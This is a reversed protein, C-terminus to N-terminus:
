YNFHKHTDEIRMEQLTNIVLHREEALRTRLATLVAATAWTFFVVSSSPVIGVAAAVSSPSAAPSLHPPDRRLVRTIVAARLVAVIAYVKPYM